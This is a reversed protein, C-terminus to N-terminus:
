SGISWGLQAGSRYSCPKNLGSSGGSMREYSLLQANMCLLEQCLWEQQARFEDASRM